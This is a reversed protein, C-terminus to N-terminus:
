KRVFILDSVEFNWEPYLISVMGKEKKPEYKALGTPITTTSNSAQWDNLKGPAFVMPSKKSILKQIPKLKYAGPQVAQLRVGARLAGMQPIVDILYIKGSEVNASVFDTNESKAWFIHEGPTCEYRIYKGGNMKGIIQDGDFIKFNIAAGLQNARVFYIVAKDTPPDPIQANILSGISILLLCVFVIKSKM